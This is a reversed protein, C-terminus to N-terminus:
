AAGRKALLDAHENGANGSHGKVWRFTTPAPRDRLLAVGYRVLDSNSCSWGEQEFRRAWHCYTHIVLESDTYIVLPSQPETALLALIVSLHEGRNNTQLGPVRAAVNRACNMGFYVGAGARASSKGNEICSGDTWVHVTALTPGRTPGYLARIGDGVTETRTLVDALLVDLHSADRPLATAPDTPPPLPQERDRKTPRKRPVPRM